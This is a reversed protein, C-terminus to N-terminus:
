KRATQSNNSHINSIFRQMCQWVFSLMASPLDSLKYGALFYLDGFKFLLGLFLSQILLGEYLQRSIFLLCQVVSINRM